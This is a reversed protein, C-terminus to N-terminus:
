QEDYGYYGSLEIDNNTYFDNDLILINKRVTEHSININNFSKHLKLTNRLSIRDLSTTEKSKAKTENSLNCYSSYEVHFDTQSYKGCSKCFYRQVRINRPEGSSTFVLKPNSGHEKLTRSYCHKCFPNEYAYREHNIMYVTTDPSLKRIKEHNKEAKEYEASVCFIYQVDSLNKIPSTIKKITM